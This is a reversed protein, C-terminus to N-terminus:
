PFRQESYDYSGDELKKIRLELERQKNIRNRNEFFIWVTLASLAISHCIMDFTM